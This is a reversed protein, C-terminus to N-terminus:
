GMRGKYTDPSILRTSIMGLMDGLRSYNAWTCGSATSTTWDAYSWEGHPGTDVHCKYAKRNFPACICPGSEHFFSDNTKPYARKTAPVGSEPELFEFLPPWEKYNDLKISLLYPDGNHAFLTVFLTLEDLKPIVGLRHVRLVDRAQGLEQEIYSRSVEASVAM